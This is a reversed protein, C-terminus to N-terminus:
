TVLKGDFNTDDDNLSPGFFLKHIAKMMMTMTESDIFLWLVIQSPKKYQPSFFLKHLRLIWKM